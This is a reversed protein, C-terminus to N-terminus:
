ASMIFAPGAYSDLLTLIEPTVRFAPAVVSKPQPLEALTFLYGEDTASLRLARAIRHLTDASPNIPRGQELWTYWTIGVDALTAVEERRLGPTRRRQGRPLGVSEPSVLARKAKLFNKLTLRGS